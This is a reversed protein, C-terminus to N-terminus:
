ARRRARRLKGRRAFPQRMARRDRARRPESREKGMHGVGGAGARGRGPATRTSSARETSCRTSWSACAANSFLALEAEDRKDQPLKELAPRLLEDIWRDPDTRALDGGRVGGPEIWRIEGTSKRRVKAPDLLGLKDMTEMAKPQMTGAEVANEFMNVANGAGGGNMEQMLHAGAGRMFRDSLTRAAIGAQNYFSSFDQPDITEKFVNM